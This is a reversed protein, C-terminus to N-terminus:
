LFSMKIKGFDESVEPLKRTFTIQSGLIYCVEGCWVVGYWSMVYCLMVHIVYVHCIVYCVNLRNFLCMFMVYIVYVRM